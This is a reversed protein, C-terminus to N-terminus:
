NLLEVARAVQPYHSTPRVGIAIVWMGVTHNLYVGNSLTEQAVDCHSLAAIGRKSNEIPKCHRVCVRSRAVLHSLPFLLPDPDRTHSTWLTRAPPACNCERLAPTFRWHCRLQGMRQCLHADCALVKSTCSCVACVAGDEVGKAKGRGKSQNEGGGEEGSRGGGEGGRPTFSRHRERRASHTSAQAVCPNQQDM